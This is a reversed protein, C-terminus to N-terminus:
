NSSLTEHYFQLRHYSEIVKVLNKLKTIINEFNIKIDQDAM